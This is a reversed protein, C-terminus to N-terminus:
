SRSGGSSSLREGRTLEPWEECLSGCSACRRAGSMLSRWPATRGSWARKVTTSPEVAAFRRVYLPEGKADVHHWGRADRARAYGKHFVDLDVFRRGNLPRGELDLHLHLGSGEQVVAIGERYDGAYAYREPYLARGTADLHLYVAGATKERVTCRAEQFNGCWGYREAYLGTGDPRIHFAGQESEVAALGGYFGFTRTFRRAYAPRASPTIHFAGTVDKVAALGPAHFALVETFRSTYLPLGGLLHHTRDASVRTEEWASV